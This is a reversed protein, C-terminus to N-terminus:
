TAVIRVPYNIFSSPKAWCPGYESGDLSFTNENLYNVESHWPTVTHSLGIWPIQKARCWIVVLQTSCDPHDKFDVSFRSNSPLCAGNDVVDNNEM